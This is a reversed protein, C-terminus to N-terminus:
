RAPQALRLREETRRVAGLLEDEARSVFRTVIHDPGYRERIEDFRDPASLREGDPGTTMDCYWLADATASRELAFEGELQDRLGREDAEILAGSHHAVLCVVREDVGYQRLFRAGDLPHFGTDVIDPSYGIDHLWASEVLAPKGLDLASSLDAARRAVAVTHRWRRPLQVALHQRALERAQAAPAV